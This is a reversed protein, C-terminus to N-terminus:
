LERILETTNKINVTYPLSSFQRIKTMLLKSLKYAPVNRWNVVSSIPQDLKYLKILYKIM